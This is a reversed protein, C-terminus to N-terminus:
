GNVRLKTKEMIGTQTLLLVKLSVGIDRKCIRIMIQALDKRRACYNIGLEDQEKGQEAM